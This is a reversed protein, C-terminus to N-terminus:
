GRYVAGLAAALGAWGFREPIRTRAAAGIAARRGADHLLGAAAQALAEDDGPPTLVGSVGDEIYENCQGVAEAAVPVGASLLDILKVSCKTRNILTDEMPFLAVDALALHAPLDAPAVWGAMTLPLPLGSRAAEERFRQEECHLGAGVLLVAPRQGHQAVLHLLRVFREPTCEVFRTYLLLVKAESPVGLRERLAAVAGPAPQPWPSAGNSLYTVGPRGARLATAMRELARSACTVAPAHRLLWQEQWAFLRKQWRPYPEVDNWGGDGEWDDTDVVVRVTRLRGLAQVALLAQAVLGGFGKPKFVHVVDPQLALVQRLLRLALWLDGLLPLRPPLLLNIVRVGGDDWARGADAPNDWPPLVMTVTHGAAALGRALPLARARMTSKPAMAFTGTFVINM